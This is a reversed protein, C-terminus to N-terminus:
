KVIFNLKIAYKWKGEMMELEIRLDRLKEELDFISSEPLPLM